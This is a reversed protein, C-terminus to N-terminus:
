SIIKYNRQIYYILQKTIAKSLKGQSIEGDFRSKLRVNKTSPTSNLMLGFLNSGKVRNELFIILQQLLRIVTYIYVCM